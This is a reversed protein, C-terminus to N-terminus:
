RYVIIREHPDCDDRRILVRPSFGFASLGIPSHRTNPEARGGLPNQRQLDDSWGYAKGVNLTPCARRYLTQNDLAMEARSLKARGPGYVQESPVLSGDSAPEIPTGSNVGSRWQV